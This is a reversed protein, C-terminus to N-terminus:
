QPSDLWPQRLDFYEPVGVSLADMEEMAATLEAPPEKTEGERAAEESTFYLVMTYVGGDHAVGLSGIIDPRWEAWKGSDDNMLERAREPDSSRGQIVQVFGADDPNGHADVDVDTSDRFSVDGSFLKSMEAWWQGQEPRDSNRRAAEESEFRVVAISTGDETVGATSGLWGSAGPALDQLWRDMAARVEGADTVQGQILQVFM